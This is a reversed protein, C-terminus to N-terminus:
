IYKWYERVTERPTIGVIDKKDVICSLDQGKVAIDVCGGALYRASVSIIFGKKRKSESWKFTVLDGIRLRM